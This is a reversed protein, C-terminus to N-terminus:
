KMFLLGPPRLPWRFMLCEVGVLQWFPECKCTLLWVMSYIFSEVIASSLLMKKILTSCISPASSLAYECHSIHGHGLVLVRAGTNSVKCNRYIRGPDDNVICMYLKDSEHGPTSFFLKLSICWNWVKVGFNDRM